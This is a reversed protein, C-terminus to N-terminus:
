DGNECVIIEKLDEDYDIVWNEKSLEKLPDIYISVDDDEALIPVYLNLPIKNLNHIKNVSLPINSCIICPKMNVGGRKHFHPLIYIYKYKQLYRMGYKYLNEYVDRWLDWSEIWKRSAFYPHFVDTSHEEIKRVQKKNIIPKKKNIKPKPLSDTQQPKPTNTSEISPTDIQQPKPTNVPKIPPIDTQQPKPVNTSKISPIDIQKIKQKNKVKYCGKNTKYMIQERLILVAGATFIWFLHHIM